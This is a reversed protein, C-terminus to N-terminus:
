KKKKKKKGFSITITIQMGNLLSKLSDVDMKMLTEGVSKGKECFAEEEDEEGEESEDAQEEYFSSLKMEPKHFFPKKEEVEDLLDRVEEVDSTDLVGGEGEQEVMQSEKNAAAALDERQWVSTEAREESKLAAAPIDHGREILATITSEETEELFEDEHKPEEHDSPTVRIMESEVPQAFPTDKNEGTLVGVEDAESYDDIRQVLESRTRVLGYDGSDRWGELGGLRSPTSFIEAEIRRLLEVIDTPLFPKKFIFDFGVTEQQDRSAILGIKTAVVNQRLIDLLNRSYIEDDIFVIDYYDSTINELGEAEDLEFGAKEAGLHIMRSVVPNKNILLVKM